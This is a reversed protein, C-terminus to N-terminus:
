LGSKGLLLDDGVPRCIGYALRVFLVESLRAELDSFIGGLISSVGQRLSRWTALSATHSITTLRGCKERKPLAPTILKKADPFHNTRARHPLLTAIKAVYGFFM